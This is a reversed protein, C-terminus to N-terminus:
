TIMCVSVPQPKAFRAVMDSYVSHGNVLICIAELGYCNGLRQNRREMVEALLPRCSAFNPSGSTTKSIMLNLIMNPINMVPPELYKSRNIDHLLLLHDDNLVGEDHSIMFLQNRVEKLSTM